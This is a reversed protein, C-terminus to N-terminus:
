PMVRAADLHHNHYLMYRATQYVGKLYSTMVKFTKPHQSAVNVTPNHNSTYAYLGQVHKTTAAVLYKQNYLYMQLPDSYWVYSWAFHPTGKPIDFVNRGFATNTGKVGLIGLITPWVDPELMMRNFQHPKTILPSSIIFPVQFRNIGFYKVGPKVNAAQHHPLGHDGHMMVITRKYFPQKKLMKFFQGVSYDAFRLSNWQKNNHIGLPKMQAATLHQIKLTGHDKPITFPRHFSASQILAFFPRKSKRAALVKIAARFLDLDSLGWVDTRPGPLNITGQYMKLGKVNNMWVGRINGWTASGGIFYYKDYGKLYNILTHQSVLLPNRSSTSKSDIDPIGSLICFLSRATGETPTYFNRFLWGHMAIKNIYPTAEPSNGFMTTKFAALSEEVMYIINPKRGHLKSLDFGYKKLLAPSTAVLPRAYTLKKINRKALPVGLYDAMQTYHARTKKTNYTQNLSNISDLFYHVPNMALYSLFMDQTYYADSWRLPYQGANGWLGFLIIVFLAVGSSIRWLLPRATPAVSQNNAENAGATAPASRKFIRHSFYYWFGVAMIALLIILAWAHYTENIMGWSTRPNSLFQLVTVNIRANLYAYFGFDAMFILAIFSYAVTYVATWIKHGINSFNWHFWPILSVLLIPLAVLIAVRADFRLGIWYAELLKAMTVHAGSSAGIESANFRLYFIYRLVTFVVITSITLELFSRVRSPKNPKM